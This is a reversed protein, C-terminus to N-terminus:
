PKRGEQLKTRAEARLKERVDAASWTPRLLLLSSDQTWSGARGAGTFECHLTVHFLDAVGTPAVEAEWRVQRDDPLVLAGGQEVIERDPEALLKARVLKLDQSRGQQRAAADFATLTNVYAAALIVSALAFIALSVLVELLTFGRASSPESKV